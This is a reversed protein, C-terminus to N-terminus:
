VVGNLNVLIHIEDTVIQQVIRDSPWSSADRFVPAEREIQLRHVSGDSATTAYCYAKVKNKEHFGFVSQMLHALPHNNFDSSVYGVNLQPSPPPPPRYVSRPLWPARLTSCSIRLANRQSIM